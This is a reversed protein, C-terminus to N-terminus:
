VGETTDQAGPAPARELVYPELLPNPKGRGMGWYVFGLRGMEECDYVNRGDILYPRRMRELLRVKDIQKFENWETVVILADSGDAM